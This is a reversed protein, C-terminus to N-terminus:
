AGQRRPALWSPADPSGLGAGGDAALVHGTVWASSRHCLWLLSPVIDGPTAVRGAPGGARVADVYADPVPNLSSGVDVFGPAVANVRVGMPGLELALGRTVAELAAKSAAYVTIGPRPRLAGGTSTFVVSAPRGHRVCLGALTTAAMLASRTNVAMVTDFLDDTTELARRAPFLGAVHLLADLPGYRRWAEEVVAQAAGPGALDAVLHPRDRHDAVVSSRPSDVAVVEAHARDLAACVASGIGGSAGLVMVRAGEFSLPQEEPPGGPAVTM